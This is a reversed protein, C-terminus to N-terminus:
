SGHAGDASVGSELGAWEDALLGYVLTDTWEGKLYWDQRLLGERVMGLRECLRASATNRSEVQARVRHMGYHGFALGLLARSAETAYGHGGVDPDFVWNAEGVSLTEDTAWLTLDGIVRGGVSGPRGDGPVATGGGEPDALEVALCTAFGAQTIHRRDARHRAQSRAFGLDWPANILYRVTQERRYYRLLAEADDERVFRLLLRETRLPVPPWPAPEGRVPM